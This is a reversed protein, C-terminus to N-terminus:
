MNQLTRFGKKENLFMQEHSTPLSHLFGGLQGFLFVTESIKM